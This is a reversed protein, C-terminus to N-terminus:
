SKKLKKVVAYLVFALLAFLVYMYWHTGSLFGGKAAKVAASADVIGAGYHEAFKSDVKVGKPKRATETLIKRVEDPSKVGEAMILAAVGAVAPTAMSTGNYFYYDDKDNVITNQLIGNEPKNRDGDGGPAAVAIEKGWNSYFTTKEDKRTAAVAISEPYKAPYSVKGVSSNGAACIIVVGKDHAYKMAKAFVEDRGGGGLSMSIINAGHDAAWRVGQAIGATSGSGGDSLVKVPMLTAEYAVGVVGKGNHTSQAITGACHTGHSNGDATNDNNSVFNFGRVFKTEKLDQTQTIGTDLVAVVIGRGTAGAKWADQLHIQTMGFQESFRPDNPFGAFKDDVDAARVAEVDAPLNHEPITYIQEKDAAEVKGDNRLEDIVGDEDDGDYEGVYIKDINSYQSEPHFVIGLEKGVQAIYQPSVDDKFDVVIEGAIVDRDDFARTTHHFVAYGILCAVPVLVLLLKKNKM